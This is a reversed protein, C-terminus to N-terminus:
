RRHESAVTDNNYGFMTRSSRYLVLINDPKMNRNSQLIKEVMNMVYAAGDFDNKANYQIIKEEKVGVQIWKEKPIVKPAFLKKSLPLTLLAVAIAHPSDNISYHPIGLGFSTRASEPSSFSIAIDPREIAIVPTLETIRQTSALLKGELTGGGHKGLVEAKFGLLKLLQNAERYLRTTNFVEHGEEKLRLSLRGLFHVQKPTLMDIWIKM